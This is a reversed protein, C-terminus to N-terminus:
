TTFFLFLLGKLFGVIEAGGLKSAGFVRDVFVIPVEEITYGYNRARVLIEMQFAYGNSVCDPILTELVQKRYLRFSGTLDSAESSLSLATAALFNAGRSTLKRKFNWGCVGGNPKYRTGSVIDCKTNLQQRIMQPIYKPHHSLDADMLIVFDGTAFSLGHRYASGLGQKGPRPRLKITDSSFAKQLSKVVDQTRDPSGDDVIIIEYDIESCLLSLTPQSPHNLFRHSTILQSKIPTPSPKSLYQVYKKDLTEILLWVILSINERENYTPLIISYKHHAYIKQPM